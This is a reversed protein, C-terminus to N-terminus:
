RGPQWVPTERKLCTWRVAMGPVPRGDDPNAPDYMRRMEQCTTMDTIPREYLDTQRYIQCQGATPGLVYCMAVAYITMM